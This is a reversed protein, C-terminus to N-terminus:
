CHYGFIQGVNFFVHPRWQAMHLIFCNFKKLAKSNGNESAYKGIKAHIKPSYHNYNGRGRARASSSKEGDPDDVLTGVVSVVNQREVAGLSTNEQSPFSAPISPM